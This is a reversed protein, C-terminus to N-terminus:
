IVPFLIALARGGVLPSLMCPGTPNKLSDPAPPLTRVQKVPPQSAGGHLGKDPTQPLLSGEQGDTSLFVALERPHDLVGLRWKGVLSCVIPSKLTM